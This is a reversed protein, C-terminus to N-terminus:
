GPATVQCPPGGRGGRPGFGGPPMMSTHEFIMQIHETFAQVENGSYGVSKATAELLYRRESDYLPGLAMMAERMENRAAEGTEGRPRGNEMMDAMLTNMRAVTALLQEHNQRQEPTMGAVDVADLFDERDRARREMSQRFEERRQQMEAYQEPNERRMEEMREEWSRRRGRDEGRERDTEAKQPQEPQQARATDREALAKELESVRRRLADADRKANEDRVTVVRVPAQPARVTEQADVSDPVSAVASLRHRLHEMGAGALACIIAGAIVGVKHKTKM